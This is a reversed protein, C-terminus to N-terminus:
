KSNCAEREKVTWFRGQQQKIGTEAAANAGSSARPL